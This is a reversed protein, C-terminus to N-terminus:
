CTPENVGGCWGALWVHDVAGAPSGVYTWFYPTGGNGSPDASYTYTCHVTNTISTTVTTSTQFSLVAGGVSVGHWVPGSFDVQATFGNTSTYGGQSFLTYTLPAGNQPSAFIWGPPPVTSPSYTPTQLWETSTYPASTAGYEGGVVFTESQNVAPNTGTENIVGSFPYKLSLGVNVGPGGTTDWGQASTTSEIVGSSLGVATTQTVTSTTTSTAWSLSCNANNYTVGNYKTHILAFGVPVFHGSDQDLGFQRFDNSSSLTSSVWQTANWYGSLGANLLYNSNSVTQWSYDWSCQGNSSLTYVIYGLDLSVSLPFSVSYHGGSDTTAAPFYTLTGPYNLNGYCRAGIQVSAGGLVSSGIQNLQHSDSTFASVWGVFGSTQASASTFSDTLSASCTGDWDTIKYDYSTSAQMDNLNVDAGNLQPVAFGYSTSTGWAFSRSTVTGTDSWNVWVQRYGQVTKVGHWTIVPPTCTQPLTCSQTQSSTTNPTPQGSAISPCGSVGLNALRTVPSVRISNMGAAVITILLGCILAYKLQSSKPKQKWM